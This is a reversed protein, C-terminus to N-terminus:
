ENKNKGRYESKLQLSNTQKKQDKIKYYDKISDSIGYLLFGILFIEISFLYDCFWLYIFFAGVLGVIASISFNYKIIKLLIGM